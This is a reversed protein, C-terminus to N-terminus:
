AVSGRARVTAGVVGAAGAITMVSGVIGAVTTLPNGDVNVLASGTCSAAGTSVGHVRYLGVGYRAYDSVNVVKSWSDDDATGKGVTWKIGAFELKIKYRDIGGPATASVTIDEDSKVDVADGPDSSSLPAVDVGNITGSCSGTVTAGAPGAATLVFAGALMCGALLRRKM